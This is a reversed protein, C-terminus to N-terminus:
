AAVASDGTVIPARCAIISSKLRSICAIVFLSVVLSSPFLDLGDEDAGCCSDLEGVGCAGGCDSEGAVTM